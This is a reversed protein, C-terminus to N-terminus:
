RCSGNEETKCYGVACIHLQHQMVLKFLKREPTNFSPMVWRRPVPDSPDFTTPRAARKAPVCAVIENSVTAVDDPHLWLLLHCHLSGRQLHLTAPLCPPHTGRSPAWCTGVGDRLLTWWGGRLAGTPSGLAHAVQARPGAPLGAPNPLM